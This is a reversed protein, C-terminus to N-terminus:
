WLTYTSQTFLNQDQPKHLWTKLGVMFWRNEEPDIVIPTGFITMQIKCSACFVQGLSFMQKVCCKVILCMALLSLWPHGDRFHFHSHTLTRYGLSCAMFSWLLRQQARWGDNKNSSQHHSMAMELSRQGCEPKPETQYCYGLTSMLLAFGERLPASPTPGYESFMVSGIFLPLMM